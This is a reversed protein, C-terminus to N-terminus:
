KIKPIYPVYLDGKGKRLKPSIFRSNELTGEATFGSRSTQYSVSAPIMCIRGTGWGASLRYPRYDAQLKVSLELGESLYEAEVSRLLKTKEDVYAIIQIFLSEDAVWWLKIKPFTIRFVRCGDRKGLYGLHRSVGQLERYQFHYVPSITSGLMGNIERFLVDQIEDIKQPTKMTLRYDRSAYNRPSVENRHTTMKGSVQRIGSNVDGFKMTVDAELQAEGWSGDICGSVKKVNKRFLKEIDAKVRVEQASLTYMESLLLECSGRKAIKKDLIVSDPMTGVYSGSLTDGVGWKGDPLIAFGLTDTVAAAKGNVYVYAYALPESDSRVSVKLEQASAALVTFGMTLTMLFTKM